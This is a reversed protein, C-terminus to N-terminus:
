SYHIVGKEVQEIILDAMVPAFQHAGYFSAHHSDRFFEDGYNREMDYWVAGTQNLLDFFNQRSEDTIKESFLPHIPMNIIIVPIGADQLTKVNYILAEKYRTSKNTVIPRWVNNPDNSQEVLESYNNVGVYNERYNEGYPDINYNFTRIHGMDDNYIDFLNANLASRFFTKTYLLSPYTKIKKLENNTFLFYSDVRVDLRSHVLNVRELFSSDSSEDTISRYTVGYIVLSPKSDIIKQIELTREIPTDGNIVINYATVNCGYNKLIENILIPDVSFGIISSGIFFVATENEVNNSDYFDYLHIIDKTDQLYGDVDAFDYIGLLSIIGVFLSILVCIVIVAYVKSKNTDSDRRVIRNILKNIKGM